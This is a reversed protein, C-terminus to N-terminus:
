QTILITTQIENSKATHPTSPGYIAIFSHLIYIYIYIYINNTRAPCVYKEHRKIERVRVRVYTYTHSSGNSSKNSNATAFIYQSKYWKQKVDIVFDNRATYHDMVADSQSNYRYFLPECYYIM